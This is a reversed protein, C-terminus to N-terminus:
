GWVVSHIGYQVEPGLISSHDESSFKIWNYAHSWNAVTAMLQGTSAKNANGIWTYDYYVPPEGSVLMNAQLAMYQSVSMIERGAENATQYSTFETNRTSVLSITWVDDMFDDEDSGNSNMNVSHIDEAQKNVIYEVKFEKYYSYWENSRITHSNSDHLRLPNDKIAGNNTLNVYLLKWNRDMRDGSQSHSLPMIPNIVIRTDIGQSLMDEYQQALKEFDVGSKIFMEPTPPKLDISRFIEESTKFAKKFSEKTNINEISELTDMKFEFTEAKVASTIADEIAGHKEINRAFADNIENKIKSDDYHQLNNEM